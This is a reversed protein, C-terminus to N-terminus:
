RTVRKRSAKLREGTCEPNKDYHKFHHGVQFGRSNGSLHPEVLKGCEPCFFIQKNPKQRGARYLLQNLAAAGEVDILCQPKEVM